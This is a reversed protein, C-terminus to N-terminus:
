WPTGPPRVVSWRREPLPGFGRRWGGFGFRDCSFPLGVETFKAEDLDARLSNERPVTVEAWWQYPIGAIVTEAWLAYQGPWVDVFRYRGTTATSTEHATMSWLIERMANSTTAFLNVLSDVVESEYVTLQQVGLQTLNGSRRELQIRRWEEAFLQYSQDHARCIDYGMRDLDALDVLSVTQQLSPWDMRFAGPVTVKGEITQALLTTCHLLLIATILSQSPFRRQSITM